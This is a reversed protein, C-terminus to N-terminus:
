NAPEYVPRLAAAPQAAASVERRGLRTQTFLGLAGAAMAVVGYGIVTPLLGAHAVVQGAVLTPVGLSLYAVLYVAAFLGGRHQPQALLLM